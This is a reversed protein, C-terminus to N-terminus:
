SHRFIGSLQGLHQALILLLAVFDVIGRKKVIDSLDADRFVDDVLVSVKSILFELLDFLMGIHASLYQLAYALIGIQAEAGTVMMLPIVSSAVRM